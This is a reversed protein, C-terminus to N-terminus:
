SELVKRYYESSRMRVRGAAERISKKEGSSLKKLGKMQEVNRYFFDFEKELDGHWKIGLRRAQEFVKFARESDYLRDLLRARMLDMFEGFDKLNYKNVFTYGRSEMGAIIRSRVAKAGRVTSTEMSVFTALESLGKVIEATSKYESLYQFRDKYRQYPRDEKFESQSLRQLRKVAIDRLRTYEQRILRDAAAKGESTRIDINPAIYERALGLNPVYALSDYRLIKTM